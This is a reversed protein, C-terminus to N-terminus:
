VRLRPYPTDLWVRRARRPPGPRLALGLESALTAAAGGCGPWFLSLGLRHARAAMQPLQRRLLRLRACEPRATDNGPCPRRRYRHYHRATASRRLARGGAL